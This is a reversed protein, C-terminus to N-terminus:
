AIWLVLALALLPMSLAVGVAFVILAAERATYTPRASHEPSAYVTTMAPPTTDIAGAVALAERQSRRDISDIMADRGMLLASEMQEIRACVDDLAALHADYLATAPESVDRSHVPQNMLFAEEMREIRAYAEDLAVLHASTIPTWRASGTPRATPESM